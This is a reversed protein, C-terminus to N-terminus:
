ADEIFAKYAAEDLLGELESEDSLKIKALWGKDEPSSNILAPDDVVESNVAEIVGSVPSYIESAAKVSEIAGIEAGRKVEDGIGPVEVFVIDGLSSQAHSTIGFTGVGNEVSIWEHEETFRKTAYGRFLAMSASKQVIPTYARPVVRSTLLRLAM